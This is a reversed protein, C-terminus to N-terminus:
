QSGIVNWFLSDQAAGRKLAEQLLRWAKAEYNPCIPFPASVKCPKALDKFGSEMLVVNPPFDQAEHTKKLGVTVGCIKANPFAKGLCRALMGTSTCCWVHKVGPNQKSVGKMVEIFPEEAEPIDFGIALFFAGIKEAYKKADSRVHSMYGMPHVWHIIAGNSKSNSQRRNPVNRKAYFLHVKVGLERGVVSLALQAGGDAPSAYVVEKHHRLIYPLFRIKSGGEVLDDRVVLVSGHREVVVEQQWPYM